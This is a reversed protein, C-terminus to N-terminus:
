RRGAIGPERRGGSRERQQSAPPAMQAHQENEVESHEPRRRERARVRDERRPREIDRKSPDLKRRRLAVGLYFLGVAAVALLIFFIGIVFIEAV